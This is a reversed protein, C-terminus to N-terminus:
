RTLTLMVTYVMFFVLLWTPKIPPLELVKVKIDPDRQM